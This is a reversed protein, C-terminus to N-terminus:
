RSGHNFRGTSQSKNVLNVQCFSSGYVLIFPGQDYQGANTVEQNKLITMTVRVTLNDFIIFFQDPDASNGM